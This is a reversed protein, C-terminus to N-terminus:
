DGYHINRLKGNQNNLQSRSLSNTRIFDYEESFIKCDWEGTFEPFRLKPINKM